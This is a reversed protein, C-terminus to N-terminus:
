DHHKIATRQGSLRGAAKIHPVKKDDIIKLTGPCKCVDLYVMLRELAACAVSAMAVARSSRSTAARTMIKVQMYGSRKRVIGHFDPPLM